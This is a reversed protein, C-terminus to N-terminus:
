EEFFFKFLDGYNLKEAVPISKENTYEKIFTLSEYICEYSKETIIENIYSEDLETTDFEIETDINDGLDNEM